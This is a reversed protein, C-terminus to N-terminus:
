GAAPDCARSRRDGVVPVLRTAAAYGAQEIPARVTTLPPHLHRALSMDDFGVVAVAEPVRIGAQDLAALVGMACEDDGAYVADFAIGARLLEEIALKGGSESYGGRRILAPDDALGHRALTERYADERLQSDHSGVPGRLFVIRQRGHVEILHDLLLRIGDRNDFVVAPANVGWPPTHLLLVMPYDRQHHHRLTEEDLTADFVIMGDANHEGIPSRRQRGDHRAQHAYILLDYEARRVVAEIGRLLPPFFNSSLEPLMLGITNTHQSALNRAGVHPTYGLLQIANRVRQEVDESVPTTANVVRSVTSISVGALRAVDSINPRPKTKKASLNAPTALM